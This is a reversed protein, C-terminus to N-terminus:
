FLFATIVYGFTVVRGYGSWGYIYYVAIVSLFTLFMLTNYLIKEVKLCLAFLMVLPGLFYLSYDGYFSTLVVCASFIFFVALYGIKDDSASRYELGTTLALFIVALAGSIYFLQFSTGFVLSNIVAPVYIFVVFGLLFMLQIASREEAMRLIMIAVFSAVLINFWVSDVIVGALCFCALMLAVLLQSKRIKM